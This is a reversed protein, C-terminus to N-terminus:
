SSKQEIVISITKQLIGYKENILPCDAYKGKLTYPYIRTPTSTYLRHRYGMIAESDNPWKTQYQLDLPGNMSLPTSKSIIADITTTLVIM